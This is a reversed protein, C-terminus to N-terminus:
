PNQGARFVKGDKMVEVIKRVNRVEATPDASLVVLDAAMGARITGRDAAQGVVMANVQTAAQIATEATFGCEKVLLAMEDVVAPGADAQKANVLGQSDTGADVLVGAEHAERTVSYMWPLIGKGVADPSHEVEQEFVRLTADLITGQEKMQGLLAVIKPDDPRIHTFDGFARSHYDAPVHEAAEWILYPTHSISTAGAAVSDSPKAPFVTAHTWVLLGQRHAEAAIAKVMTAPLNAYLKVGTAGTGKAEAVAMRIDTTEDVARMWPAGGLVVGRAAGPVRADEFFFTPGAMLASYYINPWGPADLRAERALYALVRADGAMDRLGTVGDLLLRGLSERYRAMDANGNSIHVHADILGPILWRGTLDEVRAGEPVPRGNAPYVAAIRGARILVTSDAMPAAGTGDIVTAHTLAVTEAAPQSQPPAQAQALGALIAVIALRM